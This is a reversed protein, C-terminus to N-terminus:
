DLAFADSYGGVGRLDTAIAHLSDEHMPVILPSSLTDPTEVIALLALDRTHSLFSYLCLATLPLVYISRSFVYLAPRMSDLLLMRRTMAM